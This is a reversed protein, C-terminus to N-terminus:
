RAQQSWFRAWNGWCFAEVDADSWGRACLAEALRSLHWPGDIGEPLAQASFGGDMDSGLGVARRHGVLTCVHEVHAIADDIRARAGPSGDGRLFPSYLNLGIVGGRRAIEVIAADPLHRRALRSSPDGLLARCNSHSAIIASGTREFLEDLSRDSLHSADHVIHCHDIADILARGLDTLGDRPDGPEVANGAAYRSPLNWTMGVAIVGRQVWWPLQDPHVIVDANEILIGLQLTTHNHARPPTQAGARAAGPRHPDVAFDGRCLLRILGQRVWRHYRRLQRRGLRHAADVDDPAYSVAPPADAAPIAPQTFITALCAHVPGQALAPFSVAAPPHPGGCHPPPAQMDRGSEALFALDLHADFWRHPPPSVM